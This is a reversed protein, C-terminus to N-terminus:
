LRVFIRRRYMWLLALWILALSAAGVLTAQYAEGFLLFPAPTLHRLLAAAVPKELAEYLCYAAISNMGLVFLPFAWRTRGRVDLIEHLIATALLCIGGSWLVFSPTWIRKVIPCVGLASLLGGGALAALGAGVLWRRKRTATPAERLVSGALLGLLMTGLTPVFSLTQYGGGNFVFPQERPFLNLFWRDFQASFNENKNWHAAFGSLRYPWDRAVGVKEWDFDPGPAPYLAFAAWFGTLILALALWQERRPRLALLFLFGYGLGIQTLTDEFTFYTQPRGLSRLVIGLVVLVLARRFAHVAMRARSQGRRQRAALSFPLAAGVLFSFGPQIQDHLSGGVWPVHDQHHCLFAWFASAPCASSVACFRLAEGMMLALVLGRYADLSALRAHPAPSTSAM